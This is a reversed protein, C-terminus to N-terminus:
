KESVVKAYFALPRKSGGVILLPYFFVVDEGTELPDEYLLYTIEGRLIGDFCRLEIRERMMARDVGEPLPIGEYTVGDMVFREGIRYDNMSIPVQKMFITWATAADGMVAGNWSCFILLLVVMGFSAKKCIKKVGCWFRHRRLNM